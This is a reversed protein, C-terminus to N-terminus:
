LELDEEGVVWIVKGVPGEKKTPFAKKMRYLLRAASADKTLALKQVQRALAEWRTMWQNGGASNMVVMENAVKRFLYAASAPEPANTPRGKPNGSQGKKFQGSAPPKKYGVSV